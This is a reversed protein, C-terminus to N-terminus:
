PTTVVPGFIGLANVPHTLTQLTWFRTQAGSGIQDGQAVWVRGDRLNIWPNAIPFLPAVGVPDVNYVQDPSATYVVAAPAHAAAVTGVGRLVRVPNSTVDLLTMAEREIVLLNGKTLGTLSGVRVLRDTASLANVLTTQTLDPM